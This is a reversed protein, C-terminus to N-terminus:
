GQEIPNGVVMCVFAWPATEGLPTGSCLLWAQRAGGCVRQLVGGQAGEIVTDLRDGMRDEESFAGDFLDSLRDDSWDVRHHPWGETKVVQIPGWVCIALVELDDAYLLMDNPFADGLVWHVLRMLAASLRAWWYPTSAVGFTGVQNVYVTSSQTSSKCGLFGQEEEAYKFRRHAKAFDGVLSLVAHHEAEYEELLARKERPGPMRVKDRCKIRHNVRVGHTGDHIVRKKGTIEDEVLVALAAVARNDGFKEVFADEEMKVMLGESVEQELHEVLYKEHEEASAYNSKQLAAEGWGDSELNWRLQEEFVEPTRPLENLVGLPFGTKAQELFAWDPDGAKRLVEKMLGLFFPQGEEPEAQDMIGLKESLVERIRRLFAADRVLSFAEGGRTMRFAEREVEAVSGLSRVAELRLQHRVAVWVEEELKKRREPPWRGPSALGGGDHFPAELGKWRCARPAGQGGPVLPSMPDVKVEDKVCM